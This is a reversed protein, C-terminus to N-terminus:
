ANGLSKFLMWTPPLTTLKENKHTKRIPSLYRQSHDRQCNHHNSKALFQVIIANLVDFLRKLHQNMRIRSRYEELTTAECLRNPAKLSHKWEEISRGDQKYYTPKRRLLLVIQPLLWTALFYSKRSETILPILGTYSKARQGELTIRRMDHPFLQAKLM